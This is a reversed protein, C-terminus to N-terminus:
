DAVNQVAETFPNYERVKEIEYEGPAIQQPGHEEHVVRCDGGLVRMFLRDGLEFLQADGEVRHAHGTAEGEALVRRDLPKADAPIGSFKGKNDHLEAGVPKLLVDGQQFFM